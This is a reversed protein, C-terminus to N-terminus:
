YVPNDIVFLIQDLRTVCRTFEDQSPEIGLAACSRAQRQHHEAKSASGYPSSPQPLALSVPQALAPATATPQASNLECLALDSSGAAYGQARCAEGAVTAARVASAHQLSDSLSLVCGRYHNTDFGLRAEGPFAGDILPESPSVGLVNECVYAVHQLQANSLQDPNYAKETACGPVSILIAASSSLAVILREVVSLAGARRGLSNTNM